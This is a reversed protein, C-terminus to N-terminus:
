FWERVKLVHLGLREYQDPFKFFYLSVFLHYKIKNLYYEPASRVSILNFRLVVSIVRFSSSTIELSSMHVVAM